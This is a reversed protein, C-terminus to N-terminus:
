LFHLVAGPSAKATTQALAFKPHAALLVLCLDAEINEADYTFRWLRGTACVKRRFALQRDTLGECGKSSKM